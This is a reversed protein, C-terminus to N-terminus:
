TFPRLDDLRASTAKRLRRPYKPKERATSMVVSRMVLYMQWRWSAPVLGSRDAVVEADQFPRERQRKLGLLQIAFGM